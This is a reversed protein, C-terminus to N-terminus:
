FKCLLYSSEYLDWAFRLETLILDWFDTLSTRLLEQFPSRLVDKVSLQSAKSKSIPPLSSKPYWKQHEFHMHGALGKRM